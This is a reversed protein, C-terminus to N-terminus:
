KILFALYDKIMAIPIAPRLNLNRVRSISAAKAFYEIPLMPMSRSDSESDDIIVRLEARDAINELVRSRAIPNKSFLGGDDTVREIKKNGLSDGDSDIEALRSRFTPSIADRSKAEIIFYTYPPPEELLKLLAAEAERTLASADLIFIKEGNKDRKLSAAEKIGRVSAIDLKTRREANEGDAPTYRGIVFFSQAANKGFQSFEQM